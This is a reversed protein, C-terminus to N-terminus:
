KSREVAELLSQYPNLYKGKWWQKKPGLELVAFHLHPAAASANGTYGSLAIVTGQEVHMGERMGPAYSDLHAYYFCYRGSEDVQYITIGGPVSLFLKRIVGSAVAHVPTGKPVMIDVAEHPHGSHIESFSDHLQSPTLGDIPSAIQVPLSGSVVLLAALRIATFL